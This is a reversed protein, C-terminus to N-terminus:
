SVVGPGARLTVDAVPLAGSDRLRQYRQTPRLSAEAAGFARGAADEIAKLDLTPPVALLTVPEHLGAAAREAAVAEGAVRRLETWRLPPGIVIIARDDLFAEAAARLRPEGTPSQALVQLMTARDQASGSELWELADLIDQQQM